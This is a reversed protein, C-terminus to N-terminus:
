RVQANSATIEAPDLVTALQELPAAAVGWCNLPEGTRCLLSSGVWAYPGSSAAEPVPLGPVALWRRQGPRYLYGNALVDGATEASYFRLAWAADSPSTRTLPGDPHPVELTRWQGAALDVVLATVARPDGPELGERVPDSPPTFYVTGDGAPQAPGLSAGTGPSGAEHGVRGNGPDYTALAIGGGPLRVDLLVLDRDAITVAHAAVSLRDQGSAVLAEGPVWTASSYDFWHFTVPGSSPAAAEDLCFIGDELGLPTCG